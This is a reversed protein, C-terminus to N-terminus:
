LNDVKKDLLKNRILVFNIIEFIDYTRLGNGGVHVRRDGKLSYSM